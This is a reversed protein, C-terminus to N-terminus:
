EDLTAQDEYYARLRDQQDEIYSELIDVLKDSTLNLLEILAVEDEMKLNEILDNFTM